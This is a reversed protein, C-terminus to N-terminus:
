KINLIMLVNDEIKLLDKFGCKKYFNAAGKNYLGVFLTFYNANNVLSQVLYEMFITGVGMQQLNKKIIFRHLHCSYDSKRSLIALGVLNDNDFMLKSLHWKKELDAKYNTEEWRPFLSSDNEIGIIEQIYLELIEQSCTVFRM